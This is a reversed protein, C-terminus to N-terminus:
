PSKSNAPRQEVVAPDVVVLVRDQPMPILSSRARRPKSFSETSSCRQNIAKQARQLDAQCSGCDLNPSERPRSRM